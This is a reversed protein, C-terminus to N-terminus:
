EATFAYVVTNRYLRGPRLVVHDRWAPVNIANPFQQSELCLGGYQIQRVHKGTNSGNLFNGSYFQLGPQDATVTMARGSVPDKLRAAFRLKQAKGNVIWNQDYGIPEGGASALDRGIPKPHRFDFPTAQVPRITGDPVVPKGPTYRDSAITLEHNLINGTGALNWYSHHAMNVLTPKDTRAEMVIQLASTETWTYTVTAEVNGPYGEDGDPSVLTLKLSAGLSSPIPEASWIAKDWGRVGGHLHDRNNNANLKYTKGDLVFTADKIRNAVRGVIAGFYPSKDVYERVDDFGLVVDALQGQRDPVHLETVIAGYTIIKVFAGKANTLTYVDVPTGRVTGFPAREVRGIFPNPRPVAEALGAHAPRSGTALVAAVSLFCLKFCLDTRRAWRITQMPAQRGEDRRPQPRTQKTM